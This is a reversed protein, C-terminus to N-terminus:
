RFYAKIKLSNLNMKKMISDTSKETKFQIEQESLSNISYITNSLVIKRDLRSIMDKIQIKEEETLNQSVLLKELEQKQLLCLSSVPNSKSTTLFTIAASSPSITYPSSTNIFRLGTPKTNFKGDFKYYNRISNNKFSYNNM